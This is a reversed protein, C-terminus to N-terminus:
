INYIHIFLHKSGNNLNNNLSLSFFPDIMVLVFISLRLSMYTTHM